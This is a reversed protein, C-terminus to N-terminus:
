MEAERCAEDTMALDLASTHCAVQEDREGLQLELNTYQKRQETVPEEEEDTEERLKRLQEKEPLRIRDKGIVQSGM